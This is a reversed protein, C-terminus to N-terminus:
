STSQSGDGATTPKKARAVEQVHMNIATEIESYFDPDLAELASRSIAVPKGDRELSWATLYTLTRVFSSEVMDVKVEVKEDAHSTTVGAGYVRKHEGATLMKKIEIWDGDSLDLRRSGPAVFRSTRDAM